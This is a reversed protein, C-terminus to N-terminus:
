RSSSLVTSVKKNPKEETHAMVFFVDTGTKVSCLASTPFNAFLTKELFMVISYDRGPM